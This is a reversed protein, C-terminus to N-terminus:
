CSLAMIVKLHEPPIRPVNTRHCCLLLTRMSLLAKYERWHQQIVRTAALHRYTFNTREVMLHSPGGLRHDFGTSIDDPCVLAMVTGRKCQMRALNAGDLTPGFSEGRCTEMSLFFIDLSHIDCEFPVQTVPDPVPVIVWEGVGNDDAFTWCRPDHQLVSRKSEEFSTFYEEM